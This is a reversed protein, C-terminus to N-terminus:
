SSRFKALAGKQARVLSISYFLSKLKKMFIRVAQKQKKTKIAAM